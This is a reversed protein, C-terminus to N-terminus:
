FELWKRSAKFSSGCFTCSHLKSPHVQYLHNKLSYKNQFYKDCKVCQFSHIRSHIIEIHAQLGDKMKYEKNCDECKYVM